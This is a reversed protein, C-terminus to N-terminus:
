ANWSTRRECLTRPMHAKWDGLVSSLSDPPSSSTPHGRKLRQSRGCIPEFRRFSLTVAASLGDARSPAKEFAMVETGTIGAVSDVSSIDVYSVELNPDTSDSLAEDNLTALYKLRQVEWHKPIEGLWEVGSDRYKSYSTFPRRKLEDIRDNGETVRDIAETM